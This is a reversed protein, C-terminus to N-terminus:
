GKKFSNIGRYLDRIYKNEGKITLKHIDDKM